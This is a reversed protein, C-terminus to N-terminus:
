PCIQSFETNKSDGDLLTIFGDMSKHYLTVNGDKADWIKYFCYRTAFTDALACATTTKGWDYDYYSACTTLKQWIYGDYDCEDYIETFDVQVDVVPGSYRIGKDEIFAFDFGTNYGVVLDAQDFIDQVQKRFFRFTPRNKVMDPTIPRYLIMYNVRAAEPWKKKRSPRILENFLVKGDQDVIALSLIEDNLDKGTTETDFFIIKDPLKM